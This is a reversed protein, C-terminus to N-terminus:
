DSRRITGGLNTLNEEFNEYGRDIHYIRDVVSTGEAVLAALVLAAGARIDPCMVPGGALQKVGSIVAMNDDMAIKAGLRVLEPVHKFRDNYVTDIVRSNGKAVSLLAILQPQLDTPFGPYVEAVANISKPRNEQKLRIENQRIQIEAGVQELIELVKGLHDPEVNKLTIEGQTIAAAILFTGAEIRDPIISFDVPHLENVGEITLEATGKGSIKAGTENLFDVLCSIEPEKAANKIITTGEALVAAMLMNGTAGVSPFRMEFETGVLKDVTAVINGSALDVKAGLAEMASLHIDVPRPGWACGGPLSVTATGYRGLLPGLVYFSARMTKVLDYPAVPNDCNTTDIQMINNEFTVKAGIIELLKKTTRTDRLNPVNRITHVGPALITAILVPLAANKAGSIEVTGNLSNGGEIIFKEM